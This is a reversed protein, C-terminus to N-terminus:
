IHIEAPLLNIILGLFISLSPRTIARKGYARISVELVSLGFDQIVSKAQLGSIISTKTAAASAKTYKVGVRSYKPLMSLM